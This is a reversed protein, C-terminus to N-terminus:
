DATRMIKKDSERGIRACHLTRGSDDISESTIEVKSRRLADALVSDVVMAPAPGGSITLEAQLFLEFKDDGEDVCRELEAMVEALSGVPPVVTASGLALSRARSREAARARIKRISGPLWWPSLVLVAIVFFRAMTAFRDEDVAAVVVSLVRSTLLPEVVTM